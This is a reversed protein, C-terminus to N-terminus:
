SARTSSTMRDLVDIVKPLGSSLARRRDRKSLSYILPLTGGADGGPPDRWHLRGAQVLQFLLLPVDVAHFADEGLREHHEEERAAVACIIDNEPASGRAFLYSLVAATADFTQPDKGPSTIAEAGQVTSRPRM